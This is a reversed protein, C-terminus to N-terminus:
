PATALEATAAILFVKGKRPVLLLEVDGDVEIEESCLSEGSESDSSESSSNEMKLQM